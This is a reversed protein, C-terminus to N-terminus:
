GRGRGGPSGFLFAWVRLLRSLGAAALLAFGLPLASKIVGRLPLGGPSPSVERRGFADAAFPLAYISVLAVFPFLLLLIGYLEIWARTRPALRDRLVDVRIHADAELTYSLGGLFGISYLHWQLEEFEVRGAGFAYRLTVNAVIVVLLALWIWSIWGGVRRILADLRASLRTEPLVLHHVVEAVDPFPAGAAAAGSRAVRDRPRQSRAPKM